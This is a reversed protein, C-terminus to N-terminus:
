FSVQKPKQPYDYWDQDIDETWVATKADKNMIGSEDIAKPKKPLHVVTKLTMDIFGLYPMMDEDGEETILFQRSDLKLVKKFWVRKQVIGKNADLCLVQRLGKLDKFLFEFTYLYGTEDGTHNTETDLRTVNIGKVTRARDAMASLASNTSLGMDEMSEEDYAVPVSVQILVKAKGSGNRNLWIEQEMDMKCASFGLLIFASLLWLFAQKTTKM